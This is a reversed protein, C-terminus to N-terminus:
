YEVLKYVHNLRSYPHLCYICVSDPSDVLYVSDPYNPEHIDKCRDCIRYGDPIKHKEEERMERLAIKTMLGYIDSIAKRKVPDPYEREYADNAQKWTQKIVSDCGKCTIEKWVVGHVTNHCGCHPCKVSYKM